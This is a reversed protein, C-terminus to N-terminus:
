QNEKKAQDLVYRVTNAMDADDLNSRFLALAERKIM